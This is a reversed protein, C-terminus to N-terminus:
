MIHYGSYQLGIERITHLTDNELYILLLFMDRKQGNALKLQKIVQKYVFVHLYM